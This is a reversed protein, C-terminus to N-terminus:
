YYGNFKALFFSTELAAGARFGLDPCVLVLDSSKL